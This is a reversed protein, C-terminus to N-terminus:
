ITYHTSALKVCIMIATPLLNTQLSTINEPPIDEFMQWWGGYGCHAFFSTLTLHFSFGIQM